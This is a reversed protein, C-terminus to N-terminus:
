RRVACDTGRRGAPRGSLVTEFLDVTAYDAFRPVAVEALEEATRTVDLSTGIAVGADYLMNLRERAAEARGSLARLETSDRLTAVTGPPGGQSDTTRQNIALLRDKVLHVEDTAVAEPRWCAPRTPRCASTGCM